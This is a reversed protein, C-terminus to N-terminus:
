QVIDLTSYYAWHDQVGLMFGDAYTPNHLWTGWSSNAVAEVVACACEGTKLAALIPPYKYAPNSGTLTDAFAQLGQDLSVYNQVGDPNGSLTTSGPLPVSCSFPNWAAPSGEESMWAVLALENQPDNHIGGASIFILTQAYFLRTIPKQSTM